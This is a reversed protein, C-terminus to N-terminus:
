MRMGRSRSQHVERERGAREEAPDAETRGEALDTLISRLEPDEIDAIARAPDFERGQPEYRSREADSRGEVARRASADSRVEEDTGIFKNFQGYVVKMFRETVEDLMRRLEELKEELRRIYSNKKKIQRNIDAIETQIGRQEMARVNPGEHRTPEYGRELLGQDAYSKETIREDSDALILRVNNIDAWAKRCQLLSDKQDLWNSQVKKTKWRLDGKKGKKQQGHEDLLPVRNGEEDLLYVNKAKIKAWQGKQDVARNAILIHAHPNNGDEDCHIAYVAPYGNATFQQHIYEELVATNTQLDWAKNLAVENKVFTRASGSKEFQELSNVMDAPSSFSAGEPQVLQVLQVREARGYKFTKGLREDQVAEGAIYALTACGSQGKARSVRKFSNHYIM